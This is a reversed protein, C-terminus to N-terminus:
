IEGKDKLKQILEVVAPWRGVEAARLIEAQAYHSDIIKWQDVTLSSLLEFGQETQAAIEEDNMEAIGFCAKLGKSWTLQRKGHFAKSYERFLEKKGMRLLDFPTFHGDRGKKTHAKTLEHELGWKSIYRDAYSGDQLTLGHGNPSPLKLSAAVSKWSQLLASEVSSYDFIPLRHFILIHNHPHWGNIEGHTPELAFISGVIDFSGKFHKYPKNNLFKFRSRTLNLLVSVLAQNAYHPITLTLFSVYGGQSRWDDIAKKVEKKRRESVKGACVPCDWVSGCTMLGAFSARNIKENIMIKASCGPANKQDMGKHGTQGSIARRHCYCIRKGPLFSAAILKLRFRELRSQVISIEQCSGGVAINDKFM